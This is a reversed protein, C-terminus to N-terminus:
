RALRAAREPGGPHTPDTDDWSAVMAVARAPDFGAKKLLALGVRDAEFEMERQAALQQERAAVAGPLEGMLGAMMKMGRLKLPDRALTHAIEHALVFALESDGLGLTGESVYLHGGFNSQANLEEGRILHVKLELPEDVVALLRALIAGARSEPPLDGLVAERSQFFRLTNEGMAADQSALLERGTEGAQEWVDEGAASQLAEACEQRSADAPKRGPAHLRELLSNTFGVYDM